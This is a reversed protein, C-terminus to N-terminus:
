DILSSSTHGAGAKAHDSPLARAEYTAEVIGKKVKTAQGKLGIFGISTLEAGFNSEFYSGHSAPPDAATAACPAPSPPPAPPDAVYLTLTFVNQFKSVNTKIETRGAPNRQPLDWAQTVPLGDANDFDIDSRNVFAKMRSPSADDGSGIICISVVKVAVTFPITVILQEDADSVLLPAAENRQEWPKSLVERASGDRAENLCVVKDLDIDGNLSHKGTDRLDQLYEDECHDCGCSGDHGPM